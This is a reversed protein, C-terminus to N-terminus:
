EESNMWVWRIKDTTCLGSIKADELWCGVEWPTLLSAFFFNANQHALAFDGSQVFAEKAFDWVLFAVISTLFKFAFFNSLYISIPM